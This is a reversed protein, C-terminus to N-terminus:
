TGSTAASLLEVFRPPSELLRQATERMEPGPKWDIEQDAAEMQEAFGADDMVAAMADRLQTACDEPVGPPGWVMRGMQQLDVYAEVIRASEEDLEVETIVPVDPFEDARDSGLILIPRHDGSQLAPMRSGLTGSALQVQGSTLALETDSSGEFGTIAEADLGLVEGMVTADVYDNAGTGATAYKLQGEHARVDELSQFESEGGVALVRQDAAVRGVFTFEMLDFDAGAAGGLVAGMIGQGTFFGFRLPDGEASLLNKLALLGGAGPQNEVVVTAGLEDELVPAMMRAISDYGGGADFSVVFTVTKGEYCSAGSGPADDGGASTTESAGAEGSAETSGSGADDAEGGGGCGAALLALM